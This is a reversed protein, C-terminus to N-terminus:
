SAEAGSAIWEAQLLAKRGPASEAAAAHSTIVSAAAAAHRSVSEGNTLEPYIQATTVLFLGRVPTDVQPIHRTGDLGHLPEVYKERHVQFYKVSQPDFGPVMRKVNEIWIHCIEEDSARQLDSGPATYKPLYVLHHGGVYSPDIYTTTEIVGTFPIREDTINLTWYGTLPRDLVMMPCVIGLYDVNSLSERYDVPASPIMRLFVPVQSTVVVTDFHRMRDSSTREEGFSAASESLAPAHVTGAALAAEAYL